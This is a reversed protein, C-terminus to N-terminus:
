WRCQRDGLDLHQLGDHCCRCEDCEDDEYRTGILCWPLLLWLLVRDFWGGFRDERMVLHSMAVIHSGHRVGTSALIELLVDMRDM